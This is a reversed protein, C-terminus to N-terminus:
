SSEYRSFIEEFLKQDWPNDIIPAIIGKSYGKHTREDIFAWATGNLFVAVSHGSDNWMFRFDPPEEFAIPKISQDAIPPSIKALELEDALSKSHRYLWVSDELLLDLDKPALWTRGEPLTSTNKPVLELSVTDRNDFVCASRLSIVNYERALILSAPKDSDFETQM